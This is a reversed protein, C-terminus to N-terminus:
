GARYGQKIADQFKNKSVTGHQGDPSIVSVRENDSGGGSNQDGAPASAAPGSQNGSDDQMNTLANRAKQIMQIKTPFQRYVDAWTKQGAQADQIAEDVTQKSNKATKTVPLGMSKAIQPSTTQKMLASNFVSSPDPGIPQPFKAGMQAEGVDNGQADKFSGDPQQVAGPAPGVAGGLEPGYDATEKGANKIAQEALMDKISDSLKEPKAEKPAGTPNGPAGATYFGRNVLQPSRYNIKTNGDSDLEMEPILGNQKAADNFVASSVGQGLSKGLATVNQMFGPNAVSGQNNSIIQYYAM